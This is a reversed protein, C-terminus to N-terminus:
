GCEPARKRSETTNSFFLKISRRTRQEELHYVFIAFLAVTKRSLDWFLLAARTVRAEFFDFLHRDLNIQDSALFILRFVRVAQRPLNDACCAGAAVSVESGIVGWVGPTAPRVHM